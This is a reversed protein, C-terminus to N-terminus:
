KNKSVSENIEKRLEGAKQDVLKEQKEISNLKLDIIKKKEELDKKLSNKDSKIMIGGVVKYVEDGSKELEELANKVENHELQLTQKQVLSAQINQEIIQLEQIKKSTEEDIEM